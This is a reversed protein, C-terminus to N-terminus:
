TVLWSVSCPKQTYACLAETTYGASICSGILQCKHWLLYRSNVRVSPQTQTMKVIAYFKSMQTHETFPLHFSDPGEYPDSTLMVM